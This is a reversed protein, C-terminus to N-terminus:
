QLDTRNLICAASTRLKRKAPQLAISKVSGGTLASSPTSSANFFIVARGWRPAACCFDAFLTTSKTICATCSTSFAFPKVFSALASFTLSAIALSCPSCCCHVFTVIFMVAASRLTPSNCACSASFLSSSLFASPMSLSFLNFFSSKSFFSKSFLNTASCASALCCFLWCFASAAALSAMTFCSDVAAFSIALFLTAAAPLPLFAASIAAITAISCARSCLMVSDMLFSSAASFVLSLVNALNAPLFKSAVLSSPTAFACRISRFTFFCSCRLISFAFAALLASSASTVSATFLMSFPSTLPRVVTRVFICPSICANSDCVPFKM